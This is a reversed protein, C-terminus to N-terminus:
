TCLLITTQTDPGLPVQWCTRQGIIDILHPSSALELAAHGRRMQLVLTCASIVDCVVLDLLTHTNRVSTLCALAIAPWVQGSMSMQHLRCCDSLNDGVIALDSFNQCSAKPDTTPGCWDIVPGCMIVYM